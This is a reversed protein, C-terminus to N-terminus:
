FFLKYVIYGIFLVLVLVVIEKWSMGTLNGGVGRNVGDNLSGTPNNKLESQRLRERKEEPTEKEKSDM